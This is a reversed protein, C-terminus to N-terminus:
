PSGHATAWVTLRVSQVRDSFAKRSSLVTKGNSVRLTIPKATAVSSTPVINDNISDGGVSTSQKSYRFSFCKSFTYADCCLRSKIHKTTKTRVCGDM